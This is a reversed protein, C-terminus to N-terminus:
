NANKDCVHITENPLLMLRSIQAATQDEYTTVNGNVDYINVTVKGDVSYKIAKLAISASANGGTNNFWHGREKCNTNELIFKIEGSVRNGATTIPTPPIVEFSKAPGKSPDGSGLLSTAGCFLLMTAMFGIVVTSEIKGSEDKIVLRFMRGMRELPRKAVSREAENKM